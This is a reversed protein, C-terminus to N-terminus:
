SDTRALQDVRKLLTPMRYEGHMSRVHEAALQADLGSTTVFLPRDSGGRVVEVAHESGKFRTKAVGIVVISGNTASDNMARRLHEGLGPTGHADLWVYGDVVITEIPQRVSAVVREICPLERRFFEGPVYDAVGEIDVVIEENPLARGWADFLVGAARAKNEAYQVDVALIM